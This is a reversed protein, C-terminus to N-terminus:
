LKKGHLRKGQRELVKKIRDKRRKVERTQENVPLSELAWVQVYKATSREEDLVLDAAARDSPDAFLAELSRRVADAEESLEIEDEPIKRPETALEVSELGVEHRRRRKAKSLANRLDGEASMLLFGFLGRKQPDYQAPSKMYTILADSVAQEIFDTGRLRPNRDALTRILPGWVEESLESAAVPDGAVLRQHIEVFWSDNKM